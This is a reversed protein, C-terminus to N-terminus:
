DRVKRKLMLNVCMNISERTCEDIIEEIIDFAEKVQIRQHDVDILAKRIKSSYEDKM